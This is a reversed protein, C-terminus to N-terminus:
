SEAKAIAADAQELVSVYDNDVPDIGLTHVVYRLKRVIALLDPAAAILRADDLRPPYYGGDTQVIRRRWRVITDYTENWEAEIDESGDTDGVTWPGLIGQVRPPTGTDLEVDWPGPTHAAM